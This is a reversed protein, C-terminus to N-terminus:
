KETSLSHKIFTSDFKEPSLKLGANEIIETVFDIFTCTLFSNIKKKEVASAVNSLYM